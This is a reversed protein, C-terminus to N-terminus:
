LRNTLMPLRCNVNFPRMCAFRWLNPESRKDFQNNGEPIRMSLSPKISFFRKETPVSIQNTIENLNPVLFSPLASVHAISVALVTALLVESLRMNLKQGVLVVTTGMLVGDQQCDDANNKNKASKIFGM